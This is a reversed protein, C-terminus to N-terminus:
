CLPDGDADVPRMSLSERGNGFNEPVNGLIHIKLRTYIERGRARCYKRGTLRVKTPHTTYTGALCYPDCDNTHAVASATATAGGYSRWKVGTLTLAGDASLYFVHPRYYLTQEAGPVRQVFVKETPAAGQGVPVGLALVALAAVALGRGVRHM